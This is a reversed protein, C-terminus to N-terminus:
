YYGAPVPHHNATFAFPVNVHSKNQASSDRAAFVVLALAGILFVSKLTPLSRTMLLDEPEFKAARDPRREPWGHESVAGMRGM